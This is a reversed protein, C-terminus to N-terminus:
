GSAIVCNGPGFFKQATRNKRNKNVTPISLWTQGLNFILFIPWNIVFYFVFNGKIMKFNPINSVIIAVIRSSSGFFFNLVLNNILRRTQKMPNISPIGHTVCTIIFLVYKHLCERYLRHIHKFFFM